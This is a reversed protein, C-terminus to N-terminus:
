RELLKRHEIEKKLEETNLVKFEVRRNAQRGELTTNDAVPAAEGLGTAKYQATNINPFNAQIYDLVSQARKESLAQNFAASGTDDTHGIIEVLLGPWRGLTEGIENLVASHEVDIDASSSAFVIQSTTIGGTNLLQVETETVAIPCGTKDVQLNEKTEACLDIGDFVGDGDSDLPCGSGDVLAGTPTGECQDLGDFVGDSDSDQPCGSGDVVAGAPTGECQDLGDYIGDNDSDTPCGTDDTVAGSPTDACADDRDRIGDNDSDRSSTGFAFQVGVSAILNHTYSDDNPFSPTLNSMVDRLELRLARYNANDGGLRTKLGFAVEPGNLVESHAADDALHDIQAWGGSVYPVFRADPMLDWVLDLGYHDLDVDVGGVTQAATSKGYTGELALGRTLHFAGRAGYVFSNDLGLDDAWLGAGIYPTFSIIPKDDNDVAPNAVAGTAVFTVLLLLLVKVKMNM